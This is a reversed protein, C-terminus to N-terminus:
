YCFNKHIAFVLGMIACVISAILVFVYILVVTAMAEPIISTLLNVLLVWIWNEPVDREM